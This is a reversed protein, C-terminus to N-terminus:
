KKELLRKAFKQTKLAMKKDFQGIHTDKIKLRLVKALKRYAKIRSMKGSQWLKDFANHAKIRAQRTEVDAPTSTSGDWCVVTCDNEPCYYRISFRTSRGVLKCKHDPCIM